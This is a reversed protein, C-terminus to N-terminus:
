LVADVDSSRTFNKIGQKTTHSANLNDRSNTNEKKLKGRPDKRARAAVHAQANLKQPIQQM